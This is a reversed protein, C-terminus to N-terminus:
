IVIIRDIGSLANVPNNWFRAKAIELTNGFVIFAINTGPLYKTLYPVKTHRAEGDDILSFNVKSSWPHTHIDLLHGNSTECLRFAKETFEPTFSVRVPTRVFYDKDEPILIRLVLLKQCSNLISTKYVAYSGSEVDKRSMLHRALKEWDTKRFIIQIM